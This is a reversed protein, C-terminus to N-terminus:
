EGNGMVKFVELARAVIDDMDYYKYEALRGLMVLNDFNDTLEKYCMYREQNEDNFVPYYPIDRGVECSKPYEKLITTRETEVPHIHKFETIRTFDFDNPYNVTATEQFVEMNLTEFQLDLSRYLLSGFQYNFLEDIMGTFVVTGTFEEGKFLIRNEGIDVQLIEKSDTNLLLEINPHQLMKTFISSYGNEPVTQYQDNFYRDDRGIFVPVRATVAPDIDEPKVGWQKTSYHLFVKEYIFDALLKLDEDNEQRLKLIPVKTGRGFRKVLKQELRHATDVPFLKDISNFNFPIPVKQGDISALVKHQYEHWKTFHSLYDFVEQNETHFLHPGYKHVLINNEDRCDYCNGGIHDRKEVILVKKDLQTAIREAIVSGAFGSGVIIYDLMM